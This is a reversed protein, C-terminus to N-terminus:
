QVLVVTTTLTSPIVPLGFSQTCTSSSFNAGGLLSVSSAVV